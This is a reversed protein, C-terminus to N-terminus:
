ASRRGNVGAMLRGGSDVSELLKRGQRRSTYIGRRRREPDARERDLEVAEKELMVAECFSVM